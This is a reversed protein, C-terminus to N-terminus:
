ETCLRVHVTHQWNTSLSERIVSPLLAISTAAVAPMSESYICAAISPRISILRHMASFESLATLKKVPGSHWTMWWIEYGLSNRAMGLLIGDAWSMNQKYSRSWGNAARKRRNERTCFVTPSWWTISTGPQNVSTFKRQQTDELM